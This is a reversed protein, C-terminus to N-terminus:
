GRFTIHLAGEQDYFSRGSFPADSVKMSHIQTLMPALDSVARLSDLNDISIWEPEGEPSARLSGGTVEGTFVYLGIGVDGADVVVTGCLRLNAELGTEERFERRAAELVAEGQEVHGGVGNYLGPWSRKGAAGKILLYSDGRRAFVLTRPVLLYRGRGAVQEEAPM